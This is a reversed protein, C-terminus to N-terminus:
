GLRDALQRQREGAVWLVDIATHLYWPALARGLQQDWSGTWQADSGAVVMVGERRMSRAVRLYDGDFWGSIFLADPDFEEVKRRMEEGELADRDYLRDIWDFHRDEFPVNEGPPVRVVFLEVDYRTCLARLCAAVYGTLRAYLVAIRLSRDRSTSM